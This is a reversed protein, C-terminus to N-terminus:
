ENRAHWIRIGVITSSKFGTRTSKVLERYAYTEDM